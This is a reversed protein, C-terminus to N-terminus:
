TPTDSPNAAASNTCDTNEAPAPCDIACSCATTGAPQPECNGYNCCVPTQSGDTSVSVMIGQTTPSQFQCLDPHCDVVEMTPDKELAAIIAECADLASQAYDVTATGTLGFGGINVDSCAKPNSKLKFYPCKYSGPPNPNQACNLGGFLMMVLALMAVVLRHSTKMRNEEALTMM